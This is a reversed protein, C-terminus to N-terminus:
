GDVKERDGPRLWYFCDGGAKDVLILAVTSAPVLMAGCPRLEGPTAWGPLVVLQRRPERQFDQQAVGAGPHQV